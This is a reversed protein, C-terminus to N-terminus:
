VGGGSAPTVASTVVPGVLSGMSGTRYMLLREEPLVPRAIARESTSAPARVITTQPGVISGAGAPTSSSGTSVAASIRSAHAAASGTSTATQTAATASQRTRCALASFSVLDAPTVVRSNTSLGSM